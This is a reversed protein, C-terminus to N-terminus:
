QAALVTAVNTTIANAQDSRALDSFDAFTGGSVTYIFGDFAPKAFVKDFLANIMDWESNTSPYDTGIAGYANEFDSALDNDTFTGIYTKFKDKVDFVDVLGDANGDSLLPYTANVDQFDRWDFSTLGLSNYIKNLVSSVLESAIFARQKVDNGDTQHTARILTALGNIADSSPNDSNYSTDFTISDFTSPNLSTLLSDLAKGEVSLATGEILEGYFDSRAFYSELTGKRLTAEVTSDNSPNSATNYYVYNAFSAKDLVNYLMESRVPRMMQSCKLMQIISSTSGGNSVFETFSGSDFDFLSGNTTKMSDVLQAFLEIESNYQIRKNYTNIGYDNLIFDIQSVTVFEKLSTSTFAEEFLRPLGKGLVYSNNISSLLEKLNQKPLSVINNPDINGGTSCNQYATLMNTISDIEGNSNTHALWLSTSGITSDAKTNQVAVIYQLRAASVLSSNSENDKTVLYNDLTSTDVIYDIISEFTTLKNRSGGFYGSQTRNEVEFTNFLYSDYLRNLLSSISSVDISTLDNFAGENVLDFVDGLLEIESNWQSISADTTADIKCSYNPHSNKIPAFTVSDFATKILKPTVNKLLNSKVLPKLIGEIQSSNIEGFGSDFNDLGSDSFGGIVNAINYIEGVTTENGTASSSWGETVGEDVKANGIAKVKSVLDAEKEDDNAGEALYTTMGAQDVLFKITSEFVTLKRNSEASYLSNFISSNYLSTLLHNINAQQLNFKGGEGNKLTSIYDLISPLKNVETKFNTDSLTILGQINAESLSLGDVKFSTGTLSTSLSNVFMMRLSKADSITDIINGLQASTFGGSTLVSLGATGNDAASEDYTPSLLQIAKITDTINRIEGNEGTWQTVSDFFAKSQTFHNDTDSGDTGYNALYTTLAGGSKKLMNFLYDGFVNDGNYDFMQSSAFADLLNGVKETDSNLFDINGLDTFAGESFKNLLVCMNEGEAEWNTVNKFTVNMEKDIMSALSKDLVAGFTASMLKSDDVTGFVIKINNAYQGASSLALGTTFIDILNQEKISGFVGTIGDIEDEWEKQTKFQAYDPSGEEYIGMSKFSDNAFIVDMIKLFNKNEVAGPLTSPNPNLIQSRYLNKLLTGLKTTDLNGIIQGAGSGGLSGMLSMVSGYTDLLLPLETGFSINKFNIDDGTLSVSDTLKINLSSTFSGLVDGLVKSLVVSEDIVPSIVKLASNANQLEAKKEPDEEGEGNGLIGMFDANELFKCDKLFVKAIRLIHTFELKYDDKTELTDLANELANTDIAKKVEPLTIKREQPEPEPLPEPEEGKDESSGGGINGMLGVAYKIIKDMSYYVLDSDLLCKSESTVKVGDKDYGTVIPVVKDFKDMISNLLGNMGSSSSSSESKGSEGPGEQGEEELRSVDKLSYPNRGFKVPETAKSSSDSSGGLNVLSMVDIDAESKLDCAVDYITTLESGWKIAKYDDWKTTLFQGLGSEDGNKSAFTYLVAPVLRSIADSDDIAEFADHMAKKEAATDMPLKFNSFGESLSGILGADNLATYVKKLNTVENTWNVDSLDVDTEEAIIKQAELYNVAISGGISLINTLITSNALSDLLSIVVDYNALAGGISINSDLLGSSLVNLGIDLLSSIEEGFVLKDGNVTTSTVFNMISVDISTNKGGDTLAFFTQGFISDNYAEIYEMISGYNSDSLLKQKTEEDQNAYTGAVVNVLGTFPSIMMIAALSCRVLTVGSSILRNWFPRKKKIEKGQEDKTVLKKEFLRKFFIHYIIIGLLKFITLTLIMWLIFVVYNIILYVLGKILEMTDPQHVVMYLIQTEDNGGLALIVKELTENVTTCAVNVGSINFSGLFSIDVGGLAKGIVPTLLAGLTVIIGTWVLYFVARGVRKSLGILTGIVVLGAIVFFVINMIMTIDM